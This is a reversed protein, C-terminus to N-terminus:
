PAPKASDDAKISKIIEDFETIDFTYDAKMSYTFAYLQDEHIFVVAKSKTKYDSIQLTYEASLASTDLLSTYETSDISEFTDTLEIASVYSDLMKKKADEDSLDYNSLDQSQVLLMGALPEDAAYYKRVASNDSDASWDAPITYSLNHITYSVTAQPSSSESESGCAAFSLLIIFCLLVTLSRKM